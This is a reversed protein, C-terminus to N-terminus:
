VDRWFRRAVIAQVHARGLGYGRAISNVSAGDAHLARIARVQDATLKRRDARTGYRRALVKGPAPLAGPLSAWTRGWAADLVTTAKVEPAHCRAWEQAWETANLNTQLAQSLSKRLAIVLDRTLKPNM